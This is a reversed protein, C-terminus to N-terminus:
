FFLRPLAPFFAIARFSFFEFSSGDVPSFTMYIHSWILVGDGACIVHEQIIVYGCVSEWLYCEGPSILGSIVLVM